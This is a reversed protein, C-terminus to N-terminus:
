RGRERDLTAKFDNSMEDMSNWHHGTMFSFLGVCGARGGFYLFVLMVAIGVYRLVRALAEREKLGNTVHGAKVLRNIKARAKKLKKQPTQPAEPFQVDNLLNQDM